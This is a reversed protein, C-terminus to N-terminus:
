NSEYTTQDPSNFSREIVTRKNPFITFTKRPSTTFTRGDNTFITHTVKNPYITHITQNVPNTTRTTGDPFIELTSGNPLNKVTKEGSKIINITGDSNTISITGDPKVTHIKGDSLTRSITGDISIDHITVDPLNKHTKEVFSKMSSQIFNQIELYTPNSSTFSSIKENMAKTIEAIQKVTPNSQFAIKIENIIKPIKKFITDKSPNQGLENAINAGLKFQDQQVSSTEKSFVPTKTGTPTVKATNMQNTNEVNKFNLSDTRKSSVISSSTNTTKQIATSSPSPRSSQPPMMSPSPKSSLSPIMTRFKYFYNNQNFSTVPKSGANSVPAKNSPVASKKPAAANIKQSAIIFFICTIIKKLNM